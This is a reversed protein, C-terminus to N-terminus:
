WERISCLAHFVPKTFSRRLAPRQLEPGNTDNLVLSPKWGNAALALWLRQWEYSM